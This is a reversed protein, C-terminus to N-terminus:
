MVNTVTPHCPCFCDGFYPTTNTAKHCPGNCLVKSNQYFTDQHNPIPIHTKLCPKEWEQECSRCEVVDHEKCHFLDHGCAPEPKPPHNHNMYIIEGDTECKGICAEFSAVNTKATSVHPSDMVMEATELLLRRAESIGQNYGELRGQIRATEPHDTSFSTNLGHEEPMSHVAGWALASAYISRIDEKSLAITDYDEEDKWEFEGLITEIDKPQPPM